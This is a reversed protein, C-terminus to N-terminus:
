QLWEMLGPMCAEIQERTVEFGSDSGYYPDEIPESTLPPPAFDTLLRLNDAEPMLKRMRGVHYDEMGLVLDAAEIEAATIQHAAHGSANYGHAELVRRARTDIPHGIEDRSTAASTFEVGRVGNDAAWKQAIREAM